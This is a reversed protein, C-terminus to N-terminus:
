TPYAKFMRIWNQQRQETAVKWYILNSHHPSLSIFLYVLLWGTLKKEDMEGDDRVDLQHPFTIGEPLEEGIDSDLHISGENWVLWSNTQSVRESVCVYVYETVFNPVSKTSASYADLAVDSTCLHMVLPQITLSKVKLSFAALALLSSTQGSPKGSFTMQPKFFPPLPHVVNKSCRVLKSLTQGMQGKVCGTVITCNQM